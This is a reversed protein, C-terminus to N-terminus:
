EVRDAASRRGHQEMWALQFLSSTLPHEREPQTWISRLVDRDVLAPDVGSGDWETAFARSHRHWFADTFEAKSARSLVPVPLLDGFLFRMAETRSRFGAPGVDRALASLFMADELPHIATASADAALTALSEQTIWRYRSPWWSERILRDWQVPQNAHDRAQM